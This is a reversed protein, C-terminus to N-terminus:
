LIYDYYTEMNILIFLILRMKLICYDHLSYCYINSCHGSLRMRQERIIYTIRPIIGYIEKNTVHDRWSKNLASRMMHTYIYGISEILQKLTNSTITWTISGYVLITEVISRFFNRKLKSSDNSKWIIDLSNLTEWASGIRVRIDHQTSGIYNDLYKFEEVRKIDHGLLIKM